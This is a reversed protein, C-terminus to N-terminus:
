WLEMITIALLGMHVDNGTKIGIPFHRKHTGYRSIGAELCAGIDYYEWFSLALCIPQFFPPIVVCPGMRFITGADIKVKTSLCKIFETAHLGEISFPGYIKMSWEDGTDVDVIGIILISNPYGIEQSLESGDILQIDLKSEEFVGRHIQDNDSYCLRDSSLLVQALDITHREVESSVVIAHLEFYRGIFLFYLMIILAIVLLTLFGYIMVTSIGKSKKQLRLMM